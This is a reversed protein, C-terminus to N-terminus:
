EEEGGGPIIQPATVQAQNELEKADAETFGEFKQLFYSFPVKGAIVYSYWRSRDEDFNYLLDGWNYVIGEKLQEWDEAPLDTYLDAMVNLSYFLGNLAHKLQDRINKITRVTEQDNAEVQTATMMGTKEDLVFMGQSFGCKTSILALISNIDAIRDGTLLTAVHEKVEESDLGGGMQLGKVFRPLKQRHQDAYMVASEPVFTIHKSDAVESKKRSWAVDLAELEKIANHWIPVGLPSYRDLRNPAPNKFYSFLPREVNDLSLDPLIEAWERVETLACPEGISAGPTGSKKKFCHNTIRYKRGEGEGEFRHWELRTYTTEGKTLQTQFVCGLINGNSDIETPAFGGPEVYDVNAGNPKFMLGCNGLAESVKDNIVQLIYDAQKQLYQGRPTNPMNIGIDLTVLGATVDDIFGAFNISEIDDEPDIWYPRGSTINTFRDVWKEMEGSYLLDTNFQEEIDRRFLRNWVAKIFNILGM